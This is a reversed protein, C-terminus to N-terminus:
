RCGEAIFRLVAKTEFDSLTGFWDKFDEMGDDGIRQKLMDVRKWITAILEPAWAGWEAVLDAGITGATFEKVADRSVPQVYTPPGMALSEYIAYRVPEPLSRDFREMFARQHRDSGVEKVLSGVQRQLRELQMRFGGLSDWSRVLERGEETKCMLSRSVDAQMPETPGVDGLEERTIALLERDLGEAFYREIDTDRIREIEARRGPSYARIIEKVQAEPMAVGPDPAPTFNREFEVLENSM